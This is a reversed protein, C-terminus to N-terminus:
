AVRGFRSAFVVVFVLMYDSARIYCYNFMGVKFYIFHRQRESARLTSPFHLRPLGINRHPFANFTVYFFKSLFPFFSLYFSNSVISLSRLLFSALPLFFSLPIPITTKNEQTHISNMNLFM